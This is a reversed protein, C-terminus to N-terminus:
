YFPLKDQEINISNDKKFEEVKNLMEEQNSVKEKIEIEQYNFITLLPNINDNYKATNGLAFDIVDIDAYEYERNNSYGKKALPEICKVFKVFYTMKDEEHQYARTSYVWYPKGNKSTQKFIKIKNM